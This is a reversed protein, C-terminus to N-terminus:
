KGGTEKKRGRNPRQNTQEKKVGTERKRRNPQQNTQEQKGVTKNKRGRNPRRQTTQETKGGIETKRKNPKQKTQENEQSCNDYRLDHYLPRNALEPWMM